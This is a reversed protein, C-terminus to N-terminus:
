TMSKTPNPQQFHRWVATQHRVRSAVDFMHRGSPTRTKSTFRDTFQSGNDTLINKIKM